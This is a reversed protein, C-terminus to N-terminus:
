CEHSRRRKGAYTYEFWYDFSTERAEFRRDYRAPLQINSHVSTARRFGAGEPGM